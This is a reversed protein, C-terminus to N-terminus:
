LGRMWLCDYGKCNRVDRPRVSDVMHYPICVEDKEDRRWGSGGGAYQPGYRVSAQGASWYALEKSCFEDSELRVDSIVKVLGGGWTRYSITESKELSKELMERGDSARREPAHYSKCGVLAGLALISLCITKKM